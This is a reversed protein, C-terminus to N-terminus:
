GLWRQCNTKCEKLMWTEWCWILALVISNKLGCVASILLNSSALPESAVSCRHERIFTSETRNWRQRRQEKWRLKAICVLFQLVIAGTKMFHLWTMERGRPRFTVAKWQNQIDSKLLRVHSVSFHLFERGLKRIEGCKEAGWMSVYVCVCQQKWMLANHEFHIYITVIVVTKNQRLNAVYKKHCASCVRGCM